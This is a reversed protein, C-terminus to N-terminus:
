GKTHDDVMMQAFKKVDPKTSKELALKGTEVEAMNAQAIDTLLSSDAADLTGAANAGPGMLMSAALACCVALPRLNFSMAAGKLNFGSRQMRGRARFSPLFGLRRGAM